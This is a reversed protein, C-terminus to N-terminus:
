LIPGVAAKLMTMKNDCVWRVQEWRETTEQTPTVNKMMNFWSDWDSAWEPRINTKKMDDNLRDM